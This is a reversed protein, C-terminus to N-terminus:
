NSSRKQGETAMKKKRLSGTKPSKLPLIRNQTQQDREKPNMTRSVRPIRLSVDTTKQLKLERGSLNFRHIKAEEVTLANYPYERTGRGGMKFLKARRRDLNRECRFVHELSKPRQGM